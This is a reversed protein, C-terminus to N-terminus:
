ASRELEVLRGIEWSHNDYASKVTFNRTNTGGWGITDPGDVDM